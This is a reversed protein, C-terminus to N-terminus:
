LNSVKQMHIREKLKEDITTAILALDLANTMIEDHLSELSIIEVSRLIHDLGNCPPQFAEHYLTPIDTVQHIIDLVTLPVAQESVDNASFFTTDHEYPPATSFHRTLTLFANAITSSKIDDSLAILQEAQMQQKTTLMPLVPDILFCHAVQHGMDRLYNAVELSMMAGECFGGLYFPGSSQQALIREAYYIVLPQMAIHKGTFLKVNEVVHLSCINSLENGLQTFSDAGAAAPLMHLIHASDSNLILSPNFHPHILAHALAQEDNLHAFQQISLNRVVKALARISINELLIQPTLQWDLKRAQGCFSLLSLSDAGYNTIAETVSIEQCSLIQQWLTHIKRETETAPLEVEKHAYTPQPLKRKDLKGNLTVPLTELFTITHPIMYHAVKHRLASLIKDNTQSKQFDQSTSVIYAHLLTSGNTKQTTVVSNDVEELANIHREIEQLEVRFGRIKVQEDSRGLYCLTHKDSWYVIDGTCYCKQEDDFLAQHIFQAQTLEPKNLYGQAVGEGYVLLEGPCGFPLLQKDEGVIAVSRGPLPKGIPIPSDDTNVQHLTTFTACETPGYGNIFYQPKFHSSLLKHVLPETLAEGGVLLYTLQSFISEDQNFLTDFLTRTLWLTSIQLTNITDKFQAASNLIHQYGIHLEAGNLLAGWIEFTAADFAPNALQIFRDEASYTLYESSHALSVCGAHTVTVGKPKGTTGSTYIINAVATSDLRPSDLETSIDEFSLRTNIKLASITHTDLLSSLSQESSEDYLLFDAQSDSLQYSKRDDPDKLALPTYAAGLKLTALMAVVMTMDSEMCIAIVEPHQTQQRIVNALQNAKDNLQKYSLAACANRLAIKKPYTTVIENFRTLINTSPESVCASSSLTHLHSIDQETLLPLANLKNDQNDAIYCQLIRKFLSAIRKIYSTSYLATAYNLKISSSPGLDLFASLDFKAQPQTSQSPEDVSWHQYTPEPSFQTLTFISQFVPHMSTDLQIDLLSKIEDFPLTQHAKAQTVQSNVESIWESVSLTHALAPKIPLTNVFYGIISQEAKINRNESPMGVAFNNQASFLALTHYWAALGITNLSVQHQQATSQIQESFGNELPLEFTAGQHKFVSPRPKCQALTLPSLGELQQTWYERAHRQATLQQEAYHFHAFDNFQLAPPLTHDLYLQELDNLFIGLSWGDFAIHHWVLYVYISSATHIFTIRLPRHHSLDFSACFLDECLSDLKHDQCQAHEFGVPETCRIQHPEGQENFTFKCNLASHRHILKTFAEKLQTVECKSTLKLLCPIHYASSSDSSTHTFYLQKQGATLPASHSDTPLITLADFRQKDTIQHQKLYSVIDAKHMRLTAVTDSKSIDNQSTIKLKDGNLWLCIGQQKLNYIIDIIM